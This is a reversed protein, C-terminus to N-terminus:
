NGLVPFFFNNWRKPFSCLILLDRVEYEFNVKVSSLYSTLMNFENLHDAVFGGESMNMNFLCKMLFVKNSVLIKKYIKGLSSMVGETKKEKSINFAVSSALFLQITGLAKKDLIEWEKDKM